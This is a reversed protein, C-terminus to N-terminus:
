KLKQLEAVLKQWAKAAQSYKGKEPFGMEAYTKNQGEPIFIPDWQFM